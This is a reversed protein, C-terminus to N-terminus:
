RRVCPAGCRSLRRRMCHSEHLAVGIHGVGRACEWEVGARQLQGDWLEHARSLAVGDRARRTKFPGPGPSGSGELGRERGRGRGLSGQRM